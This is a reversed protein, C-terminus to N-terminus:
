PRKMKCTTASDASAMVVEDKMYLGYESNDFPHRIGENTHVAIDINQIAQHDDPRMYVQGGFISDHKMGELAYAVKVVDTATGADNIARALMEIVNAIRPQFNDHEGYKAEFADVYASMADSVPPNMSGEGVVYLSGKGAAGFAKTIGTSAGYYTFIPGSFGAEVIAKGLGVMDAGWNGTIVADAESAVIKRAYPTFDKVKNIPHLENGVFEIDPRKESLNKVAAAAVAKGFSYDQGILYVKKFDENKKMVDTLADMKMDANADFRFHWFNCKDNTLAPDVASYNLFLIRNDPNRRNHKNVADTLANAVGSSNGQAIYRIGQDIVVQLQILSEKPSIKNDFGIIEMEQGGLVGGKSNILYDAAHTFESLGMTGSPAFAGSLPDIFAIKVTEASSVSACVGISAAFITTIGFKKIMGM